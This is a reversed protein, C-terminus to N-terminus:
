KNIEPKDTRGCLYDLSVEFYDALICLKSTPPDTEGNEYRQYNRYTVKLLEAVDKAQINKSKRFDKLRKYDLM